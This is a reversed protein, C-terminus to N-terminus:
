ELRLLSRCSHTACTGQCTQRWTGTTHTLATDGKSSPCSFEPQRPTNASRCPATGQRLTLGKQKHPITELLPGNREAGIASVYVMDKLQSYDMDCLLQAKLDMTEEKAGIIKRAIDTMINELSVGYEKYKNYYDSLYISPAAVSGKERFVLADRMGLNVKNVANLSVVYGRGKNPLYEPIEDHVKTCFEKYTLM